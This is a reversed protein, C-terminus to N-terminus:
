RVLYKWVGAINQRFKSINKICNRSRIFDLTKFSNFKKKGLLKSTKLNISAKSNPTFTIQPLIAQILMNRHVLSRETGPNWPNHGAVVPRRRAKCIDQTQAWEGTSISGKSIVLISIVTSKTRLQSQVSAVVPLWLSIRASTNETFKAFNRLVDKKCFVDPRSSRIETRTLNQQHLVSLPFIKCRSRKCNM